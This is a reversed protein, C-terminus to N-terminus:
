VPFMRLVWYMVNECGCQERVGIFESKWGAPASFSGGFGFLEGGFLWFTGTRHCCM